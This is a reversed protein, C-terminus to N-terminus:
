QGTTGERETRMPAPVRRCPQPAALADGTHDQECAGGEIVVRGHHHLAPPVVRAIDSKWNMVRTRGEVTSRDEDDEVDVAVSGDLLLLGQVARPVDEGAAGGHGVPRHRVEVVRRGDRARGSRRRASAAIASDTAGAYSPIAAVPGMRRMVQASMAAVPM